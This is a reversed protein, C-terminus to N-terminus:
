RGSGGNGIQRQQSRQTRPPASSSPTSRSPLGFGRAQAEWEADFADKEEDTAILDSCFLKRQTVHCTCRTVHVKGRINTLLEHQREVGSGDREMSIQRARDGM